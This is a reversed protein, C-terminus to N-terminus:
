AVAARRPHRDRATWAAGIIAELDPYQPVWGLERRIRAATLVVAPPEGPVPQAARSPITTGTMRRVTGLVEHVSYGRDLGVNYRHGGGDLAELARVHAAALDCVHVYDRVLTGDATPYTTGPIDVYLRRGEAVALARAVFGTEPEPAMGAFRDPHSSVAVGYRLCTWGLGHLAQARSLLEEILHNTEGASTTTEIAEDEDIPLRCPHGFIAGDASLVVRRVDRDCATGILGIIGAVPDGIRGFAAARRGSAEAAPVYVVGDFRHAAFLAQLAARDGLTGNVVPIGGVAAAGGSATLDDFIVPRHGREMLAAVIHSGLHSTGGAVLVNQSM